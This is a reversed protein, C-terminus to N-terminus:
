EIDLNRSTLLRGDEVLTGWVGFFDCHGAGKWAAAAAARGGESPPAAPPAACAPNGAHRAAEGEVLAEINWADAPLTASVVTRIAMATLNAVGARAGGADMAELEQLLDAPTHPRLSCRWLWDLLPEASAPVQIKYAAAADKGLLEGYADGAEAPSGALDLLQVGAGAAYAAGDDPLDVSYLTGAGNSSRRLVTYGSPAAIRPAYQLRFSPAAPRPAPPRGHGAVACTVCLLGCFKRM